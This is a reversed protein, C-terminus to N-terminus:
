RQTSMGMCTTYCNSRADKDGAEDFLGPLFIIEAGDKHCIVKQILTLLLDHKRDRWQSRPVAPEM